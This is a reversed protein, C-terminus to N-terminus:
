IALLDDLRSKILILQREKEIPFPLVLDKRVAKKLQRIFLEFDTTFLEVKSIHVKAFAKIWEKTNTWFNLYEPNFQRKVWNPHKGRLFAIRDTDRGVADKILAADQEITVHTMQNKSGTFLKQNKNRSPKPQAQLFWNFDASNAVEKVVWTRPTLFVSSSM